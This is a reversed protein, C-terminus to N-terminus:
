DLIEILPIQAIEGAKFSSYDIQLENDAFRVAVDFEFGASIQAGMILGASPSITVLGTLPAVWFHSANLEVGDVAIRLTNAHPKTIKRHYNQEDDSSSGYIKTLQFEFNVGDFTGIEQDNADIPESIESSKYDLIDHWKFGILAGRRAEFFDTVKALDAFSKSTIGISYKRKSHYKSANRQERGSLFNQVQTHREITKTASFGINQPFLIDQFDEIM